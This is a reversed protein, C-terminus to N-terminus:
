CWLPFYGVSFRWHDGFSVICCLFLLLFLVFGVGTNSSYQWTKAPLIAPSGGAKLPFGRKQSFFVTFRLFSFFSSLFCPLPLRQSQSVGM